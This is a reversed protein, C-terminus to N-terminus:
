EERSIFGIAEQAMTATSDEVESERETLDEGSEAIDQVDDDDSPEGVWSYREGVWSDNDRCYRLFPLWNQSDTALVGPHGIVILLSTPRTVAVNFRKSNAVFGLNYKLDSAIWESEARVTSLIICRREQGQFTEVSGVKINKLNRSSLALRIKQAQRAYPTIVGIDEQKVPPRAENVLRNVYTVVLQAEQPNFWSPSNSERLNEGHVAHFMVPFKKNPLYEWRTMDHTKLMDGSPVLDGDYFLENPLKLIAPHSRYNRILKTILPTRFEDNEDRDYVDRQALREMYSTALGFERCLKSTIVPGLQKPDGALILQGIKSDERRFDMLSSAVAVVEPETAHGAEDVCLVQFHGRPVGYIALRAAFNVTCVVIRVSLVEQVIEETSLGDTAYKRVLPSHQDLPRSYALIRRM